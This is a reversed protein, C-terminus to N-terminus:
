STVRCARLSYMLPLRPSGAPQRYIRGPEAVLHPWRPFLTYDHEHFLEIQLGNELVAEIVEPPRHGLILPGSGLMCDIYERGDADYVKSGAGRVMVMRLDPPLWMMGLCAGPLYHEALGLLERQNSTANCVDHAAITM